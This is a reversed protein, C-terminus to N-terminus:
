KNGEAERLPFADLESAPILIKRGLKLHRIKGAALLEYISNRGITNKLGERFEDPTLLPKQKIEVELQVATERRAVEQNAVTAM